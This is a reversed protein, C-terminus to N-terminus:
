RLSRCAIEFLRGRYKGRGDPFTCVLLEAEVTCQARAGSISASWRTGDRQVTLEGKLAPPFDLKQAWVGILDDASSSPAQALARASLTVALVIGSISHATWRRYTLDSM